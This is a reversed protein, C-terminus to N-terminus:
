IDFDVENKGQIALQASSAVMNANMERAIDAVDIFTHFHGNVSGALEKLFLPHADAFHCAHFQLYCQHRELENRYCNDFYCFVCLLISVIGLALFSKHWKKKTPLSGPKTRRTLILSIPKPFTPLFTNM